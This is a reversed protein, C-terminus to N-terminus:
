SSTILDVLVLCVRYTDFHYEHLHHLKHAWNGTKLGAQGWGVCAALSVIALNCLRDRRSRWYMVLHQILDCFLPSSQSSCLFCFLHLSSYLTPESIYCVDNDVTAINLMKTCQSKKILLREYGPVNYSAYIVLSQLIFNLFKFIKFLM